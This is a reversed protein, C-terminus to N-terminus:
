ESNEYPNPANQTKELKCNLVIQRIVTRQNTEPSFHFILKLSRSTVAWTQSHLADRHIQSRDDIGFTIWDKM